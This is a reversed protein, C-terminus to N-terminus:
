KFLKEGQVIQLGGGLLHYHRVNKERGQRRQFHDKLYNKIVFHLVIAMFCFLVEQDVLPFIYM